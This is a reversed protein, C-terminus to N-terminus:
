TWTLEFLTADSEKMFYYLVRTQGIFLAYYDDIRQRRLWKEIEPDQKLKENDSNKDYTDVAFPYQVRKKRYETFISYPINNLRYM